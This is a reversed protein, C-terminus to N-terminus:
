DDDVGEDTVTSLSRDGTLDDVSQELKRIKDTSLSTSASNLEKIKLM